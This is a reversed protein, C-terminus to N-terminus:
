WPMRSHCHVLRESPCYWLQGICDDAQTKSSMVLYFVIAILNRSMLGAVSYHPAGDFGSPPRDIFGTVLAKMASMINTCDSPRIHTVYNAPHTAEEESDTDCLERWGLTKAIENVFTSGSAPAIALWIALNWAFVWHKGSISIVPLESYPLGPLVDNYATEVQQVIGDAVPAYIANLINQCPTDLTHTMWYCFFLCVRVRNLCKQWVDRYIKLRIDYGGRLDREGFSLGEQKLDNTEKGALTENELAEDLLHCNPRCLLRYIHYTKFNSVM